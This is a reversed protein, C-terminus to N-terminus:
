SHSWTRTDHILGSTNHILGRRLIPAALSLSLQQQYVSRIFVNLATTEQDPQCAEITRTLSHLGPRRLQCVRVCARVCACVCARVCVCVCVCVPTLRCNVKRNITECLKHYTCNFLEYIIHCIYLHLQAPIDM